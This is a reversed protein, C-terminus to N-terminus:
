HGQNLQINSEHILASGEVDNWPHLLLTLPLNLDTFYDLIKPSQRGLWKHSLSGSQSDHKLNPNACYIAHWFLKTGVWAFINRKKVLRVDWGGGQNHLMHVGGVYSPSISCVSTCLRLFSIPMFIHPKPTFIHSSCLILLVFFDCFYVM